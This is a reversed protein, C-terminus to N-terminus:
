YCEFCFVLAAREEIQYCDNETPLSTACEFCFQDYRGSDRNHMKQTCHSIVDANTPTLVLVRGIATIRM